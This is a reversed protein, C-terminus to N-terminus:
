VVVKNSKRTLNLPEMKLSRVPPEEWRGAGKRREQFGRWRWSETWGSLAHSRMCERAHVYVCLVERAPSGRTLPPPCPPGRPPRSRRRGRITRATLASKSARPPISRPPRWRRPQVTVRALARGRVCACNQLNGRVEM